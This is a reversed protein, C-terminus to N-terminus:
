LHKFIIDLAILICMTVDYQNLNTIGELKTRQLKKQGDSYWYTSPFSIMLLIHPMAFLDVSSPFEAAMHIQTSTYLVLLINETEVRTEKVFDEM